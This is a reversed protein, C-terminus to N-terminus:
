PQCMGCAARGEAEHEARTAPVVPKRRVLQCDVRHYRRMGAGAVLDESDARAQVETETTSPVGAAAFSALLRSRRDGIARRGLLLWFCNGTGILMVGVTGLNLWGVQSTIRATGSAGWWAVAVLAFGVVVAGYLVLMESVQWPERPARVSTEIV